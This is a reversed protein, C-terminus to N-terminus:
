EKMQYAVLAITWYGYKNLEREFEQIKESCTDPLDAIEAEPFFPFSRNQGPRNQTEM